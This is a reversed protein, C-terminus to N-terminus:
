GDARPTKIGSLFVAATGKGITVFGPGGALENSVTLSRGNKTLIREPLEYKMGAISFGELRDTLPLISVYAPKGPCPIKVPDAAGDEYLLIGNGDEMLSFSGNELFIVNEEDILFSPIKEALPIELNMLNSMFHDLRGGTGGLIIIESAGRKVSELVAAEMDTYDKEPPYNLVEPSTNNRIFSAAAGSSDYDGLLLDPGSGAELLYDLGRDAAVTLDPPFRLLFSRLFRINLEGGGVILVRLRNSM